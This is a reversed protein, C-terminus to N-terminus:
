FLFRRRDATGDASDAPNYEQLQLNVHHLFFDNKGAVDVLYAGERKQKKSRAEKLYIQLGATICSECFVGNQLLTVKNILDSYKEATAVSTSTILVKHSIFECCQASGITPITAASGM